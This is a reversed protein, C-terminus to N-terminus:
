LIPNLPVGNPPGGFHNLNCDRAHSKSCAAFRYPCKRNTVRGESIAFVFIALKLHSVQPSIREWLSTTEWRQATPSSNSLTGSTSPSIGAKRLQFTSRFPVSSERFPARQLGCPYMTAVQRGNPAAARRPLPCVTLSIGTGVQLQPM